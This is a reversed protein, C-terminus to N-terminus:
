RKGRRAPWAVLLGIAVGACLAAAPQVVFSLFFGLPGAVLWFILFAKFWPLSPKEPIEEVADAEAAGGPKPLREALTTRARDFDEDRVFVTPSSSADAGLAFRAGTLMEGEVVAEVGAEDLYGAVMHAQAPTNAVFVAKM